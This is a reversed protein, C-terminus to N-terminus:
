NHYEYEFSGHNKVKLIVLLKTLSTIKFFSLKIELNRFISSSGRFDSSCLRCGTPSHPTGNWWSCSCARWSVSAALRLRELSFYEAVSSKSEPISDPSSSDVSNHTSFNLGLYIIKHVFLLMDKNCDSTQVQSINIMLDFYPRFNYLRTKKERM